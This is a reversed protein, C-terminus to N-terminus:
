AQMNSHLDTQICTQEYAQRNPHRDTKIDKAAEIYIWKDAQKTDIQERIHTLKKTMIKATITQWDKRKQRGLQRNTKIVLRNTEKYGQM